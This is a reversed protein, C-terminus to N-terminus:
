PKVIAVLSHWGDMLEQFYSTAEFPWAQGEALEWQPHEELHAQAWNLLDEHDTRFYFRGQPAMRGALQSLFAAQLMRNKHHRKKPWPDPFLMFVSALQHPQPWLSLFEAAEAKLFHCHSLGRKDAKARAKEIRKSVLDLGLCFETPFAEAYACLYHGHGCGFELTLPAQDPKNGL